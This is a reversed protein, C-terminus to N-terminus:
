AMASEIDEISRPIDNSVRRLGDSTALVDDEIRMGIGWQRIYIGTDMSFFMGEAIPDQYSGVDHVDFGIHHSCKHWVYQSLESPSTLLGEAKLRPFTLERNLEDIYSFPMGPKITETLENNVDFSINYVLKQKESFVGNRPFVRSIDVCCHNVIAGVDALCLAGDVLKGGPTDYHLYFNNEGCSVIPKFASEVASHKHIIYMFEAFLDMETIANKSVSLMRLIGERTVSIAEDIAAIEEPSKIMRQAAIQEFASNVRLGPYKDVIEKYFLSNQDTRYQNRNNELCLFIDNFYSDNALKRFVDDFTGRMAIDEIGSRESSEEATIRRGTWKEIEPDLERIFLTEILEGHSRRAFLVCNPDTVGTLYVFSRNAFFRFDEDATRHPPEGSFIVFLAGDPLTDYLAARNRAFFSKNM